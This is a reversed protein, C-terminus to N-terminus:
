HRLSNGDWVEEAEYYTTKGDSDELSFFGLREKFTIIKQGGYISFFWRESVVYKKIHFRFKYRSKVGFGNAMDIYGDVSIFDDFPHYYKIVVNSSGPYKALDLLAETIIRKNNEEVYKIYNKNKNYNYLFVGLGIIVVAAVLTLLKWKAPLHNKKLSEKVADDPKQPTTDEGLSHSSEKKEIESTHEQTHSTEVDVIVTAMTVVFSQKCTACEVEKDLYGNDVDYQQECFPCQIKM